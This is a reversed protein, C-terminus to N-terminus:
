HCSSSCDIPKNKKLWEEWNNYRPFYMFMLFLSVFLLFYFDRSLGGLFFLALGYIAPGECLASTLLSTKYLKSTLTILNDSSSKKLLFGRLIRIIIIQIIGLGYFIYRLTSMDHLHAFGMYPKFKAKIFEVCVAYIFLSVIIAVSIIFSIRHAKKFDNFQKM